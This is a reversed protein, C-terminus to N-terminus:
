VKKSEEQCSIRRYHEPINEEMQFKSKEEIQFYKDQKKVRHVVLYHLIPSGLSCFGPAWGGTGITGYGTGKKPPNTFINRLSPKFPPAPKPTPSLAPVPGGITGYYSGVGCSTKFGSSPIFEKGLNKKSEKQRYQRALRVPDCYAEGDMVRSFTETFYGAQTASIKKEGPVYFNKGKIRPGPRHEKYTDGITIYSMESFLGIRDMDM